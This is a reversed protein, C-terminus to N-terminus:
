VPRFSATISRGDLLSELRYRVRRGKGSMQSRVGGVTGAIRDPAADLDHISAPGFLGQPDSFKLTGSPM